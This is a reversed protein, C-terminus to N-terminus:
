LMRHADDLDQPKGFVELGLAVVTDAGLVVSDPFRSAISAAKLRANSRTLESPTFFDCSLESVKPCVVEPDFNAERLLQVRRPSGSALILRNM